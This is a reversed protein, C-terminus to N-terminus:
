DIDKSINYYYGEKRMLEEKTGYELVKGSELVVITNADSLTKMRHAIVIWTSGELERNLNDIVISETEPDLASTAEDFILIHPKRIIMRAIAIRQKQGGSVSSGKYGVDRELGEKEVFDSMQALRMAYNIEDESFSDGLAINQQITGSFM